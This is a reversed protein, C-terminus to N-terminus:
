RRENEVFRKEMEELYNEGYKEILKARSEKMRAELFVIRQQVAAKEIITDMEAAANEITLWGSDWEGIRFTIGVGVHDGNVVFYQSQHGRRKIEKGFSEGLAEATVSNQTGYSIVVGVGGSQNSYRTAAAKASNADALTEAAVGPLAAFVISLAVLLRVFNLSTQM